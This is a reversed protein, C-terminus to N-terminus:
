KRIKIYIDYGYPIVASQDTSFGLKSYVIIKAKANNYKMYSVAEHWGKCSQTQLFDYYNFTTPDPKDFTNYFSSTDPNASLTYKIYRFVIEDNVALSDPNLVGDEIYKDGENTLQFYLGTPSKYYVNAPWPYITPLTEVVKINNRSIFDAILNKEDKLQDGYTVENICSAFFLSIAFVVLFIKFLLKM